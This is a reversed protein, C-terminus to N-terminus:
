GANQNRFDEATIENDNVVVKGRLNELVKEALIAEYEQVYNKGNEQRLFNDAFGRVSEELEPTMEMNFQGLIKQMTRDVIEENEVKLANAEVVKNRIMSWKLEKEYDDYHEEIQEATLKGENARLLWKKFFEKPLEITTNELMKDILQRNMLNDSERDYNEMVTSSVKEDFDEKSTVIDKGFVKDFLEQNFEAAATRQVKDVALTYDGELSGAEEKSMGTFGAIATADGDFANKLDFTIVDEAKAGVFKDADNKLKSTPLMVMRGEGEEDAKKLKGLLYDGAEATEPETSEGFQRELQEYTEKLTNEDLTVKHRDVTVAQDAPLEFDPLLGLEFQFAYDKQADFDIDSAVPLPEGLIKLDNSKIYEDVSKGLLGNIEDVLIGKGYMKRVLTVPVKGPRFGKIQAKKSYEKLKSEVAPAYDAETLNVTLIANLQDDQKDLTIDM